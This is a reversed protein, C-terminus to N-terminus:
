DVGVERGKVWGLVVYCLSVYDLRVVVLNLKGLGFYFLM